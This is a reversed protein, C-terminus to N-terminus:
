AFDPWLLVLICGCMRTQIPAWQVQEKVYWYIVTSLSVRVQFQFFPPPSPLLLPPIPRPIWSCIALCTGVGGNSFPLSKHTHSCSIELIEVGGRWLYLETGMMWYGAQSGPALRLVPSLCMAEEFERSTLPINEEKCSCFNLHCNPWNTLCRNKLSFNSFM